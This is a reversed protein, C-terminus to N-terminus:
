IFLNSIVTSKSIDLWVPLKLGNFIVKLAQEEGKIRLHINEQNTIELLLGLLVQKGGSGNFKKNSM